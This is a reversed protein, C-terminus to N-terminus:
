YVIILQIIQNIQKVEFSISPGLIEYNITSPIQESIIQDKLNKQDKTEM